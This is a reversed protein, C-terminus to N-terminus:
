LPKCDISQTSFLVCSIGLMYFICHIVFSIRVWGMQCNFSLVKLPPLPHFWWKLLIFLGKLIERSHGQFAKFGHSLTNSWIRGLISKISFDLIRGTPCVVSDTSKQRGFRDNGASNMVHRARIPGVSARWVALKQVSFIPFKPLSYSRIPWNGSVSDISGPVTASVHGIKMQQEPVTLQEDKVHWLKKMRHGNPVNWVM